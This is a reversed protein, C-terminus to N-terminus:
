SQVPRVATEGKKLRTERFAIYVTSSFIVSGGIWTWLDPVEAFVLFGLASLAAASLLASARIRDTRSSSTVACLMGAFRSNTQVGSNASVGVCCGKTVTPRLFQVFGAEGPHPVVSKM